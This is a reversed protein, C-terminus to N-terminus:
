QDPNEAQHRDIVRKLKKSTSLLILVGGFLALSSYEFVNGLGRAATSVTVNSLINASYSDPVIRIIVASIILIIIGLAVPVLALFIIRWGYKTAPSQFALIAFWVLAISLGVALMGTLASLVTPLLYLVNPELSSSILWSTLTIYTSKIGEMAALVGGIIALIAGANRIYDQLKDNSVRGVESNWDNLLNYPTIRVIQGIKPCQTM